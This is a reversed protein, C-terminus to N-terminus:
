MYFYTCCFMGIGKCCLNIWAHFGQHDLCAGIFTFYLAGKNAAHRFAAAAAPIQDAASADGAQVQYVVKTFNVFDQTLNGFLLSM